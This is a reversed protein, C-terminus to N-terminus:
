DQDLTALVKRVAEDIRNQCSASPGDCPMTTCVNLAAKLGDCEAACHACGAVHSQMTTCLDDSLEGELYRSFTERIDPCASPTPTANPALLARLEARARHLRSKVAAVSIDVVEAVEKASLGEVDRLLLVERKEPELRSIADQVQRWLERSEVESHPDPRGSHLGSDGEDLEEFPEEHSPAFKSKRRRKICFSRTVTYLWTSLSSAGRFDRFSRALTLMTDQLVEEADEPDRCMKMGFRYLQPRVTRLLDELADDDGSRARELLSAATSTDITKGEDTQM